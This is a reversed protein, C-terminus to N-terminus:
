IVYVPTTAVIVIADTVKLEVHMLYRKDKVHRFRTVQLSQVVDSEQTCLKPMRMEVRNWWVKVKEPGGVEYGLGLHHVLWVYALKQTHALATLIVFHQPSKLMASSYERDFTAEVYWPWVRYEKLHLTENVPREPMVNFGCWCTTAETVVWKPPGEPPIPKDTELESNM